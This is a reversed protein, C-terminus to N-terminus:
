ELSDKIRDLEDEIEERHDETIELEGNETEVIEEDLMEQMRKGIAKKGSEELYTAAVGAWAPQHFIVRTWYDKPLQINKIKKRTKIKDDGDTSSEDTTGFDDLGM